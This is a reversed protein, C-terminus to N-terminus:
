GRRAQPTGVAARPRFRCPSRAHTPRRSIPFVHSPLEFTEQDGHDMWHVVVETGINFTRIDAGLSLFERFAYGYIGSFYGIERGDMLVHDAHAM